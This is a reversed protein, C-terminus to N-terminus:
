GGAVIASNVCLIDSVSIHGDRNCDEPKIWANNNSPTIQSGNGRAVASVCRDTPLVPDALTFTATRDAAPTSCALDVTSGCRRICLSKTASADGAKVTVKWQRAAQVDPVAVAASLWLLALAAQFPVM